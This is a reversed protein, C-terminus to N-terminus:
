KDSCLSLGSVELWQGHSQMKILVCPDPKSLADRDSIGKCTVRLEVKALCPSNFLGLTNAASEYINSMTHTHPSHEALSVFVCIVTIVPLRWEDNLVRLCARACVCVEEVKNVFVCLCGWVSCEPFKIIVLARQEKLLGEAGVATLSSSIIGHQNSSCVLCSM